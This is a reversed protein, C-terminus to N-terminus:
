YFLHVYIIYLEGAGKEEKEKEEEEGTTNM